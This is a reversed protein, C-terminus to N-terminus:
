SLVPPAADSGTGWFDEDEQLWTSHNVDEGAGEGLGGLGGPAGMASGGAVGSKTGQVNIGSARAAGAAAGAGAMGGMGGTMPTGPKGAIATGASVVAGSPHLGPAAPTAATLGGGTPGSAPETGARASGLAGPSIGGGGGGIGGGGGLGGAGLGGLGGAGGGHGGAPAVGGPTDASAIQTGHSPQNEVTVSVVVITEPGGGSTPTTLTGTGPGSAPTITSSPMPPNVVSPVIHDPLLHPFAPLSTVTNVHQGALTHYAAKAKDDNDTLFDRLADSAKDFLGFSLAGFIGKAWDMFGPLLWDWFYGPHFTTVLEGGAQFQTRANMAEGVLEQPIPTNDLATQLHDAAENLQQVLPRYGEIIQALKTSLENLHQRYAEGAAGQWTYLGSSLQGLASRIQEIRLLLLEWRGAADRIAGPQGPIVVLTIVEEWTPDYENAYSPINGAFLNGSQTV